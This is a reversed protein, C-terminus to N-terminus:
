ILGALPGFAGLSFGVIAVDSTERATTFLQTSAIFEPAFWWEVAYHSGIANCFVTAVARFLLNM